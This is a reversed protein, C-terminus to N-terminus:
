PVITGLYGNLYIPDNTTLYNGSWIGLVDFSSGTWDVYSTAAGHYLELMYANTGLDITGSNNRFLM